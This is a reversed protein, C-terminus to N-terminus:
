SFSQECFSFKPVLCQSPLSDSSRLAEFLQPMTGGFQTTACSGFGEASLFVDAHGPRKTGCFEYELARGSSVLLM